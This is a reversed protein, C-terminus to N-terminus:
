IFGDECTDAHTSRILCPSVRSASPSAVNPPLSFAFHPSSAIYLLTPYPLSYQIKLCHLSSVSPRPKGLERVIPLLFHVRRSSPKPWTPHTHTHTDVIGSTRLGRWVKGPRQVKCYLTTSLIERVPVTSYQVLCALHGCRQTIESRFPFSLSTFSPFFSPRTPPFYPYAPYGPYEPPSPHNPPTQHRCLRM